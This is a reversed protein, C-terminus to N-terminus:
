AGGTRVRRRRDGPRPPLGPERRRERRLGRGGAVSGAPAPPSRSRSRHATLSWLGATSGSGRAPCARPCGSCRTPSTEAHVAPVTGGVTFAAAATIAPSASYYPHHEIPWCWGAVCGAPARGGLVSAAIAAPVHVVVDGARNLGGTGDRSSRAASGARATGRRGHWRRTPASRRRRRRGPVRVAPRDRVVARGRGPRAAARRRVGAPRLLLRVGDVPEPRRGPRRPQGGASKTM